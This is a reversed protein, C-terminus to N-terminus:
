LRKLTRLVPATEVAQLSPLAAIKTTLYEFLSPADPCLVNAYLNSTGTTAAAFAVESHSALAEGAARLDRPNVSLWLISQSDMDLRQYDLDVDFYLAGSARLEALRRRVTTQATDAARAIDTVDARGDQALVALIRRDLDDLEVTPGDARPPPTLEDIQDTSLARIVGQPGGFFMHLMSDASVDLVERTRPLTDLLLTTSDAHARARVVAVIGAGGSTLKVWSTEPRRALAEGVSTAVRPSSRVRLFWLTEGVRHPDTRGLVRVNKTSRLSSYRRAVTQDSVGIVRAITSFSARGDLHLAHLIKFDVDDLTDSRAM